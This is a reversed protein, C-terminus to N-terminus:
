LRAGDPVLRCYWAEGSATASVAEDLLRQSVPGHLFFDDQFVIVLESDIQHLCTDLSESWSRDEGSLVTVVREDDFSVTNSFLFVPYPCDPWASWFYDFFGRWLDSYGDCSLVAVALDCM